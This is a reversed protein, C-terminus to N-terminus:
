PDDLMTKLKEKHMRSAKKASRAEVPMISLDLM